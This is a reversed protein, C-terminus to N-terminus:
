WLKESSLFLPGHLKYLWYCNVCFTFKLALIQVQAAPDCWVSKPGLCWQGSLFYACLDCCIGAAHLFAQLFDCSPLQTVLLAVSSERRSLPMQAMVQQVHPNLCSTSWPTTRILSDEPLSSIKICPPPLPLPLSNQLLKSM